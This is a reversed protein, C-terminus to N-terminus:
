KFSLENQIDHPQTFTMNPYVESLLDSDFYKDMFEDVVGQSPIGNVRESNRHVALASVTIDFALFVALIVSIIRIPKKHLTKFFREFLPLIVSVYALSLLGWLLSYFLNTRGNLNFASDSYEWSVAGLVYEMAFSSFFEVFAGILCGLFFIVYKKSKTMSRLVSDYVLAGIGYVPILPEYILGQRCEYRGTVAFAYITELIFGILSCIYFLWFYRYTKSKFSRLWKVFINKNM